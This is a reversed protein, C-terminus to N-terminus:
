MMYLFLPCLLVAVVSIFTYLEAELALLRKSISYYLLIILSAAYIAMIYYSAIQNDSASAAGAAVGGLIYASSRSM